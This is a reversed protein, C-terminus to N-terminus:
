GFYQQMLSDLLTQTKDLAKQISVKSKDIQHVFTAFQNQLKLPPVPIQIGRFKEMSVNYMSGSTGTSVASIKKRIAKSSLVQKMYFVNTMEKFRIKWLKDPLILEPFDEKIVASAGVMEKTNARSFLLDGSQPYVLKKINEQDELVKCEEPIFYGKTVSSVKLVAIEGPMKTKQKGNGSWGSECKM